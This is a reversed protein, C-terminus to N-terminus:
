ASIGPIPTEIKIITGRGAESVLNFQGGIKQIRNKMNLLGSGFASGAVSPLGRGNDEITINLSGNEARLRFWVESAEAHKVINNLAEKVVLFINHRAESSMPWSPLSPPVDLRYRISSPAFFMEFYEYLYLALNDLSDNQPNIAWVIADLNRVLDRTVHSVRAVQIKVDSEGSKTKLAFDNLMLIQTLRAGLDDHMDQAIRAREKEVAHQQELHELRRQMKIKTFYRANGGVFGIFAIGCLGYFWWTQWFHPLLVMKLAAGKENWIGDNNCATVEFRYTGPSLNNYYAVRRPGADVWDSDVGQLKYKFQNKEPAQFSLAAFHFELERRGAPITRTFSEASSYTPSTVKAMDSAVVLQRDVIIEELVIPPPNTNIKLNSDCSIVGKNTAFWLRGDRGRCASPQALGN